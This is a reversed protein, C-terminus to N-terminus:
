LAFVLVFQKNTEREIRSMKYKVNNSNMMMKTENGAYVITGIIWETNKLSSGRHLFNGVGMSAKLLRKNYKLFLTGEFKYIQDNPDECLITGQMQNGIKEFKKNM